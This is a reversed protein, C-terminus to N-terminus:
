QDDKNNLTVKVIEQLGATERLWNIIGHTVQVVPNDSQFIYGCGHNPRSCNIFQTQRTGHYVFTVNEFACDHFSKGDLEVTENKFHKNIISRFPEHWNPTPFHISPNALARKAGSSTMLRLTGRRWLHIGLGSLFVGLTLGIWSVLFAFAVGAWSYTDWYSHWTTSAGAIVVAGFVVAANIIQHARDFLSWAANVNKARYYLASIRMYSFSGM